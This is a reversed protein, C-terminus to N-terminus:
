VAGGQRRFFCYVFAQEQRGSPATRKGSTALCGKSLWGEKPSVPARKTAGISLGWASRM